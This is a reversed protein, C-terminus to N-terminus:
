QRENKGGPHITEFEYVHVEYPKFADTFGNETVFISRNEFLVKGPRLGTLAFSATVNEKSSNAALLFTKGDAKKLLVNMSPNGDSDLEPGGLIEPPPPQLGKKETLVNYLVSLEKALALIDKRRETTSFAGIYSNWVIGNAGHIICLYTMLRLEEQTPYRTWIPPLMFAQPAALIIKPAHGSVRIDRLCTRVDSIVRQPGNRIAAYKDSIPYLQPLFVDSYPVYQKYNSSYSCLPAESQMGLLGPAFSKAYSQFSSLQSPSFRNTDDALYMGIVSSSNRFEFLWYRICLMIGYKEAAPILEKVDPKGLYSQLFNVGCSKLEALASDYNFQNQPFKEITFFGIPFFPKGNLLILGDERQTVVNGTFLSGIFCHRMVTHKNGALDEVTFTFANVGSQLPMSPKWTLTDGKRVLAKTLDAKNQEMVCKLTSWNVGTEDTIKFVVPTNPNEVPSESIREVTPPERDIGYHWGSDVATGVRIQRLLPTQGKSSNLIVRCRIWTHEPKALRISTGTETYSSENKGDPGYFASWNGPRGNNDAASSLQIRVSSGPPCEANWTLKTNEEAPIPRSIFEASEGYRPLDEMLRVKVRSFAISDDKGISPGGGLQVMLFVAGEPVKGRIKNHLWEKSLSEYYFYDVDGIPKRNKDLWQLKNSYNKRGRANHMSFTGKVDMELIFDRGPQVPVPPTLVSWATEKSGPKSTVTLCPRGNYKRVNFISSNKYNYAPITMSPSGTFNEEYAVRGVQEIAAGEATFSVEKQSTVAAGYLGTLAIWAFAGSLLKIM